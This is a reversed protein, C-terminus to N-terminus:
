NGHHTRRTLIVVVCLRKNCTVGTNFCVVASKAVLQENLLLENGFM